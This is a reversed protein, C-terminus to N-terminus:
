PAFWVGTALVLAHFSTDRAPMDDLAFNPMIVAQYILALSLWRREALRLDMGMEVRTQHGIGRGEVSRIWVQGAGLGYAFYPRVREHRTLAHKAFIGYLLAYSTHYDHGPQLAFETEFGVWSARGGALGGVQWGFRVGTQLGWPRVSRESASLPLDSRFAYSGGATLAFVRPAHEQPVAAATAQASVRSFSCLCLSFALCISSWSRL